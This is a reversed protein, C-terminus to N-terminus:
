LSNSPPTPEVSTTIGVSEQRVTRATRTALVALLRPQFRDRAGTPIEGLMSNCGM